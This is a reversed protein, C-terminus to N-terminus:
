VHFLTAGLFTPLYREILLAAAGLLIKTLHYDRSFTLLPPIGNCSEM